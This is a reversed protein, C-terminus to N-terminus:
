VPIAPSIRGDRYEITSSFVFRAPGALTVNRAGAPTPEFGITLPDGSTPIVTVRRPGALNRRRAHSLVTSVSGTGCALTEAEVGREYTRVRVRDDSDATAFNVNAGSPAFVEHYRLNRGNTEIDVVEVNEVWVVAHPVGVVIFDIDWADVPRPEPRSDVDPFAVEVGGDDLMRARYVGAQTDFAMARGAAGLSLAFAAICRAGNGCMEGESGDANYYRMAFDPATRPREVVLVGDAGVGRRRDCLARALNARDEGSPLAGGRDDLAVFDNGAGEYKFVKLQM